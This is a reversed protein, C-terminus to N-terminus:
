DYAKARMQNRKVREKRKEFEDASADAPLTIEKEPEGEVKEPRTIEQGYPDILRGPKAHSKIKLRMVELYDLGDKDLGKVELDRLAQAFYNDIVETHIYAPRM